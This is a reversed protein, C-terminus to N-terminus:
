RNLAHHCVDFSARQMCRDMDTGLSASILALSIAGAIALLHPM